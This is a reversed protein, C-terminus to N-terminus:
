QTIALDLSTVLSIKNPMREQQNKWILDLFLAAIMMLNDKLDRDTLLRWDSVKQQHNDLWRTQEKTKFNGEQHDQNWDILVQHLHKMKSIKLIQCKTPIDIRQAERALGLLHDRTLQLWRSHPNLLHDQYKLHHQFTLQNLFLQHHLRRIQIQSKSTADLWPIKKMMKELIVMMNMMPHTTLYLLGNPSHIGMHLQIWKRSTNCLTSHSLVLWTWKIKSRPHVTTGRWLDLFAKLIIWNHQQWDAHLNVMDTQHRLQKSAPSWHKILMSLTSSRIKGSGRLPIM